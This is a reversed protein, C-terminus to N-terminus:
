RMMRRSAFRAWDVTDVAAAVDVPVSARQVTSVEPVV